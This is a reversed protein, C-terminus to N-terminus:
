RKKMQSSGSASTATAPTPKAASDAFSDGSSVASETPRAPRIESETAPAASLGFRQYARRTPIGTSSQVVRLRRRASIPACRSTHVSRREAAGFAVTTPM